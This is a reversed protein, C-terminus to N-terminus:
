RLKGKAASRRAAENIKDIYGEIPPTLTAMFRNVPFPSLDPVLAEVRLEEPLAEIAEKKLGLLASEAAQRARHKRMLVRSYEKALRRGDEVTLDYRPIKDEDVLGLTILDLGPTGMMWPSAFEDKKMKKLNQKAQENAKSILGMKEREAERAKEKPKLFRLPSTATLCQDVMEDFQSQKRPGGEKKTSDSLSGKKTTVKSRKLPQAGKIKGKGKATGSVSCRQQFRFTLSDLSSPNIPKLKKIITSSMM